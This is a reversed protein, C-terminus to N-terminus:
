SEMIIDLPDRYTFGFVHMTAWVAQALRKGEEENIQYGLERGKAIKGAVICLAIASKAVNMAQESSTPDFRYELAEILDAM